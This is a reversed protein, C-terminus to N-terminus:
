AASQAAEKCETEDACCEAVLFNVLGQMTDYEAHCVLTTGERVQSILGVAVLNKVHHSLTSAPVKLREQLRGVPMGPRGARVLTRYIKLRTSNGLAELRAAADDIKM